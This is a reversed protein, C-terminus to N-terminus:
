IWNTARSHFFSAHPRLEERINGVSHSMSRAWGGHGTRYHQTKPRYHQHALLNWLVEGIGEWTGWLVLRELKPLVCEGLLPEDDASPFSGQCAYETISSFAFPMKIPDLHALREHFTILRPAVIDNRFDRM